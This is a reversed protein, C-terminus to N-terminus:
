QWPDAEALFAVSPATGLCNYSVAVHGRSQISITTILGSVFAERIFSPATPSYNTQHGPSLHCQAESM